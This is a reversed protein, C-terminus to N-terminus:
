AISSLPESALSPKASATPASPMRRRSRLSPQWKGTSGNAVCGAWFPACSSSLRCPVAAHGTYVPTHLAVLAAAVSDPVALIVQYPHRFVTEGDKAPVDALSAALQQTFCSPRVLHDNVGSRDVAVM